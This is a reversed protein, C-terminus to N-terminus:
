EKKTYWGWYTERGCKTCKVAAAIWGESGCGECTIAYRAGSLPDDFVLEEVCDIRGELPATCM